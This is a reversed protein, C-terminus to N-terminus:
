VRRVKLANLFKFTAVPPIFSYVVVVGGTILDDGQKAHPGYVAMIQSVGQLHKSMGIVVYASHGQIVENPWVVSRCLERDSDNSDITDALTKDAIFSVYQLLSNSDDVFKIPPIDRYIVTTFTIDKQPHYIHVGHGRKDEGTDVKVLRLKKFGTAKELINLPIAFEVPGDRFKKM